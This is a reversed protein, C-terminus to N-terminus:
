VRLLNIGDVSFFIPTEVNKEELWRGTIPRKLHRRGFNQGISVSLGKGRGRYTPNKNGQLVHSTPLKALLFLLCITYLAVRNDTDM